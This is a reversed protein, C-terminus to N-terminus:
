RHLFGAQIGVQNPQRYSQFMDVINDIGKIIRQLQHLGVHWQSYPVADTLNEGRSGLDIGSPFVGMVNREMGYIPTIM